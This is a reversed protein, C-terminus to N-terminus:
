RGGALVRKAAAGHPLGHDRNQRALVLLSEGPLWNRTAPDPRLRLLAEIARAAPPVAVPWCRGGNAQNLCNSCLFRPDDRWALEASRCTPCDVIWYGRYVRAALADGAAPATHPPLNIGWRRANHGAVAAHREHFRCGFQQGGDVVPVGVFLEDM